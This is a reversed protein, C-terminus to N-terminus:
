GHAIQAYSVADRELFVEVVLIFGAAQLEAHALEELGQGGNHFDFRGARQAPRKAIRAETELIRLPHPVRKKACDTM